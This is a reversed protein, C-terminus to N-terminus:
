KDPLDFDINNWCAAVRARHAAIFNADDRTHPRIIGRNEIEHAGSVMKEYRLLRAEFPHRAMFEEGTAYFARRLIKVEHREPAVMAEYFAREDPTVAADLAQFLTHVRIVRHQIDKLLTAM